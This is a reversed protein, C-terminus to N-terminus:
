MYRRWIPKLWFFCLVNEFRFVSSLHRRFFDLENENQTQLYRWSKKVYPQLYQSSAWCPVDITNLQMYIKNGVKTMTWSCFREHNDCIEKTPKIENKVRNYADLVPCWWIFNLQFIEKTWRVNCGNTFIQFWLYVLQKCTRLGWLFHNLIYHFLHKIRLFSVSMLDIPRDILDEIYM